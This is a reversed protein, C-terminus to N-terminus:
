FRLDGEDEVTGDGGGFSEQPGLSADALGGFQLGTLSEVTSVPVQYLRIEDDTLDAERLSEPSYYRDITKLLAEQTVVFAATRLANGKRYAFVKFFQKPIPVKRFTGDKVRKGSPNLKLLGGGTNTCLPADFIPGNFICLRGKDAAAAAHEELRFWIGSKKSNQNFAWHQPACNTYHYSDDGNRKAMDEDPGWQVDRRRTLHGQDFPNQSRDAEKKSQNKYFTRDIQLGPAVEDVRTDTYWTDGDADRQGRWQKPDVNAASVFALRRAKNFLVSYTWYKLESSTGVKLLSQKAKGGVSPLPVLVGNGLFKPDYGVRKAYNTQDIIVKETITAAVGGGVAAPAAGNEGHRGNVGIAGVNTQLQLEVPIRVRIRGDPETLTRIATDWEATAGEFQPAKPASLVLQALPNGGHAQAIYALIRSIRVGENAIWDVQADGMASTWPEGNRALWVTKSGVNKTKPVSSHHLAVVEWDNNFVPSGSSGGSTDTEYWLFPGNEDYRILKNERVCIQKPEGGPHQIITLYEGVFAKGPQPNLRLWGYEELRTATGTMPEVAAITFDLERSIIPAPTTKM